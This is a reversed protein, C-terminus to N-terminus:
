LEQQEFLGVAWVLAMIILVVAAGLATFNSTQLNFRLESGLIGAWGMLAQPSISGYNPIQASLMLVVSGVLSIGAAAAISRSVTSGLITIATFCLLWMLLLFNLITFVGLSVPEFLVLIYIYALIEAIFFAVVYVLTQATFKSLIFAWRPLPKHLIMETIGKEKESAVSGMGVLIAILFGFQSINKLYQTMADIITPEPILDKFMEAGEISGFIQPMFYALLPSAMGFLAFVGVIVLVMKSRWLQFLEKRLAVGFLRWEIPLKPQVNTKLQKGFVKIAWFFGPLLSLFLVFEILLVDVKNTILVVAITDVAAHYLIAWLVWIRSKQQFAYLVMMSLVVHLTMALLRELLPLLGAVAPQNLADLQTQLFLIQEQSINLSSLDVGSLAFLQAIGGATLVGIIIMAEIGGHGLGLMIGDETKRAKKLITYGVVRALEECIGATLGLIIGMQAIAWRNEPTTPLMGIKTLLNNLPLHVIQSGVFTFAGVGFLLWSVRFRRRLLIGLIVPIFISLSISVIYFFAHM